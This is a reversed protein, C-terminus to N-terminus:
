HRPFPPEAGLPQGSEDDSTDRHRGTNSNADFYLIRGSPTIWKVRYHTQGDSGVHPAADSLRGPHQARIEPLMRDLTAGSATQQARSTAMFVTLTAVIVPALFFRMVIKYARSFSGCTFQGLSDSKYCFINEGCTRGVRITTTAGNPSQLDTTADHGV